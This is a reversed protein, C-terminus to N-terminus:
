RGSVARRIREWVSPGDADGADEAPSPLARTLREIMMAQARLQANREDLESELRAVYRRLTEVEAAQGTPMRDTDHKTRDTDRKPLAVFWRGGVKVGDLSGRRIRARVADASVGLVRAADAVRIRDTDHEIRDTDQRAM